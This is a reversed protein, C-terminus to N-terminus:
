PTTRRDEAAGPPPVGHRCQVGWESDLLGYVELDLLRGQGAIEAGRLTGEHRFRLREPIARSRLNSTAARIQIRHLGARRFGLDILTRCCSTVIGRGQLPAALWYGIDAWHPPADKFRRLSIDGSLAGQHFIGGGLSNLKSEHSAGNEIFTRAAALSYAPSAWPMYPSLHDLNARILDLLEPADESTLRRIRTEADVTIPDPLGDFM